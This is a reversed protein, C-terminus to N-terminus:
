LFINKKRFNLHIFFGSFVALEGPVKLDNPETAGVCVVVADFVEVLEQPNLDVGVNVKTKIEIGEDQLIGLRRVVWKKDLKTNPIGYYLLGGAHEKREFITVNHGAKNLQAGCALGSPGSGIIAVKKDTRTKPKKPRIWGNEFGIDAITCEINKISVGTQSLNLVCADECPAPCVRGTVEPFNDTQLLNMVAEKMRNKMVLWAWFPVTNSLPCGYQPTECFPVGCDICRAAQKRITKYIRPFDYVENLDKVRTSVDRLVKTERPYLMFGIRRDYKKPEYKYKKHIPKVKVFKKVTASFDKLLEEALISNTVEQFEFLLNKLTEVEKEDDLPSLSVTEKNCKDDFTKDVDYVYAVGGVMGSGFNRGTSGLM